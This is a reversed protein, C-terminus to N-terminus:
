LSCYGAKKCGCFQVIKKTKFCGECKSEDASRLFWKEFEACEVIIYDGEEMELDNLKQKEESLLKGKGRIKIDWYTLPATERAIYSFM